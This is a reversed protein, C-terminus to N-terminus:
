ENEHYEVPPHESQESHKNMTLYAAQAAPERPLQRASVIRADLSFRGGGLFVLSMVVLVYLVALQPDRGALVNQLIAVSLTGTLLAANLRTFLGLALMPACVFQVATAAFASALPAPFHMGAVEEALRWATGHQLYALGGELKHWGHVYFIMLGVGLRLLLQGWAAALGDPGVALSRRFRNM